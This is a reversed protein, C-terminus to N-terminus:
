KKYIALDTHLKEILYGLVKREAANDTGQFRGVSYAVFYRAVENKVEPDATQFKNFIVDAEKSSLM